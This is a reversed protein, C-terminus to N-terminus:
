GGRRARRWPAARNRGASSAARSSRIRPRTSASRRWAYAITRLSSRRSAISLAFSFATTARTFGSRDSGVGWCTASANLCRSFSMTRLLMRSVPCRMSPRSRTVTRGMLHSTPTSGRVWPEASNVRPSVWASTTEVSPVPSSSCYMSASSPGVLFGEQQVVIERGERDALGAPEAAGATALDAM